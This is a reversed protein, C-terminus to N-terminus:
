LSLRMGSTDSVPEVRTPLCAAPTMAPRRPLVMRSSPPLLAMMMVGLVLKFIAIGDTTKPATPVAPCRQVVVRRSIM